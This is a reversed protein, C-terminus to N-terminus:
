VGTPWVEVTAARLDLLSGVAPEEDLDTVELQVIGGVTLRVLICGNDVQEM